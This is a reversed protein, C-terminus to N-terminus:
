MGASNRKLNLLKRSYSSVNRSCLESYKTCDAMSRSSWREWAVLRGISERLPVVAWLRMRM